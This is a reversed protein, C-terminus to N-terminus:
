TGVINGYKFSIDQNNRSSPAEENGGGYILELRKKPALDGNALGSTPQIKGPRPPKKITHYQGGSSAPHTLTSM